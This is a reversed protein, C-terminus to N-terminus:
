RVQGEPCGTNECDFDFQLSVTTTTLVAFAALIAKSWMTADTSPRLFGKQIEQAKPSSLTVPYYGVM